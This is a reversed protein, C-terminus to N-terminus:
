ESVRGRGRARARLGAFVVGVFLVGVGVAYVLDSGVGGTFPLPPAVAVYRMGLPVRVSAPSDVVGSVRVVTPGSDVWGWGYPAAGKNVTVVCDSGRWVRDSLLRSAWAGNRLDAFNLRYSFSADYAAGSNCSVTGSVTVSGARPADGPVTFVGNLSVVTNSLSYTDHSENLTGLFPRADGPHPATTTVRYSGNTPPVVGARGHVRLSLYGGRPIVSAVGSVSYSGADYVWSSPCVAGGYAVREPSATRGTTLFGVRPFSMKVPVGEASVGSNDVTAEVVLPAGASVGAADVVRTVTSIDSCAAFNTIVQSVALVGRKLYKDPLVAEARYNGFIAPECNSSGADKMAINLVLKSHAPLDLLKNEFLYWEREYYDTKGIYRRVNASSVWDPCAVTSAGNCSLAVDFVYGQQIKALMDSIKIGRVENEGRNEYTLTFNATGGRPVSTKDVTKTVFIDAVPCDGSNLWARIEEVKIQNGPKLKYAFPLILKASYNSFVLSNCNTSGADTVAINLVLKSHAPM